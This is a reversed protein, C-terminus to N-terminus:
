GNRSQFGRRRWCSGPVPSRRFASDCFINARITGQVTYSDFWGTGGDFPVCSREPFDDGVEEPEGSVRAFEIILGAVNVRPNLGALWGDPGYSGRFGWEGILNLRRFLRGLSNGSYTKGESTVGTVGIVRRFAAPYVPSSPVILGAPRLGYPFLSFFDGQAAFM